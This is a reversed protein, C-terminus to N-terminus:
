GNIIRDVLIRTNLLAYPGGTVAEGYIIRRPLVNNRVITQIGKTDRGTRPKRPALVKGLIAAIGLAVVIEAVATAIVGSGFISAIGGILGAKVGM